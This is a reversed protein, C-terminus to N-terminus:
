KNPPANQQIASINTNEPKWINKNKPIQPPSIIKNSIPHTKNIDYNNENNNSLKKLNDEIKNTIPPPM